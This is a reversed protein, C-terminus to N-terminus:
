HACLPFGTRSAEPGTILNGVNARPWPQRHALKRLAGSADAPRKEKPASRKAPLAVATNPKRSCRGAATM